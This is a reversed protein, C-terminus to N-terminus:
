TFISKGDRKIAKRATKALGLRTNKCSSKQEHSSTPKKVPAVSQDTGERRVIRERDAIRVLDAILAHDVDRAVRNVDVIVVLHMVVLNSVLMVQQHLRILLYPVVKTVRSLLRFLKVKPVIMVPM